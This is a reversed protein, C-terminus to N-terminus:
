RGATELTTIQGIPAGRTPEITPDKAWWIAGYAAVVAPDARPTHVEALGIAPNVLVLAANALGCLDATASLAAAWPAHGTAAAYIQGIAQQLAQDSV